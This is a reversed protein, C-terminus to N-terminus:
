CRGPWYQTSSASPRHFREARCLAALDPPQALRPLESRVFLAALEVDNREEVDDHVDQHEHERRHRDREGRRMSVCAARSCPPPTRASFRVLREVERHEDDVLAERDLRRAAVDRGAALADAGPM